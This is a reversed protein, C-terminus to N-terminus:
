LSEDSLEAKVYPKTKEESIAIMESFIQPWAALGEIAHM